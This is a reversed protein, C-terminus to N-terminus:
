RDSAGKHAECFGPRFIVRPSRREGMARKRVLAMHREYEQIERERRRLAPEMMMREWFRLNDTKYTHMPRAKKWRATFNRGFEHSRRDEDAVRALYDSIPAEPSPFDPPLDAGRGSRRLGADGARGSRASRPPPPKV